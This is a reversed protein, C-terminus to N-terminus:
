DEVQANAGLESMKEAFDRAEDRTNFSIIVQENDLISDTKGKAEKLSFGIEQFLKSSGVKNFGEYWPGVSVSFNSMKHNASTIDIIEANHSKIEIGMDTIMQYIDEKQDENLIDKPLYEKLQMKTLYGQSKGLEM